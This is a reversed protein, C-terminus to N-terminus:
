CRRSEATPPAPLHACLRSGSEQIQEAFTLVTWALAVLSLVSAVHKGALSVAVWGTSRIIRGDLGPDVPEQEPSELGTQSVDGLRRDGRGV